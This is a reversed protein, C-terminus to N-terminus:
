GGRQMSSPRPLAGIQALLSFQDAVGWHEVIRGNEYRCVDMVTVVIPKGTAPMGMLPGLHTARGTMRAWTKDGVAVIEDITLKLDPFAARLGAISRKVGEATPPTIGAQHEVFNPAFLEDLVEPKGQSYAEEAVRRFAQINQEGSM